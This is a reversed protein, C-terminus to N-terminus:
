ITNTWFGKQAGCRSLKLRAHLGVCSITHLGQAADPDGEKTYAKKVVFVSLTSATLGVVQRSLKGFEIDSLLPSSQPRSHATTRTLLCHWLGFCSIARIAGFILGLGVWNLTNLATILWFEYQYALLVLVDLSFITVFIVPPLLIAAVM